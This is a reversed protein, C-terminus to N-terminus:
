SRSWTLEGEEDVALRLTEGPLTQILVDAGERVFAGLSDTEEPSLHVSDTVRRRGEGAHVNGLVIRSPLFGAERARMASSVEGLLVLAAGAGGRGLEGPLGRVPVAVVALNRPAAARYVSLLAPDGAVEDDAIILREVGLSPIWFQVVQGHLLRNDIRTHVVKPDNM